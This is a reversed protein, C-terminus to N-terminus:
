EIEYERCECNKMPSIRMNGSRPLKNAYAYLVHQVGGHSVILINKDPYSKKLEDFYDQIRDFFDHLSESGQLQVNKDFDFLDNWTKIDIYTSANREQLRDETAVPLQHYKNVIEATQLARKLPSSIIFDFHTNKLQVALDEAQQIGIDNLPEDLEEITQGSQMNANANTQGHRVFYIKMFEMIGCPLSNSNKGRDVRYVPARGM